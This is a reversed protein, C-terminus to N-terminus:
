LRWPVHARRLEMSEAVRLSPLLAHHGTSCQRSAATSPSVRCLHTTALDTRHSSVDWIQCGGTGRERWYNKRTEGGYVDEAVFIFLKCRMKFVEEEEEEGTKADVKQLLSRDFDPLKLKSSDVFDEGAGGGGGGDGGGGSFITAM